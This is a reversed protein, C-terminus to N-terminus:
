YARKPKIPKEEPLSCTVQTGQKITLLAMGDQGSLVCRELMAATQYTQSARHAMEVGIWSAGVCSAGIATGFALSWLCINITKTTM